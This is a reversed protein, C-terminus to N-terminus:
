VRGAAVLGVGDPRRDSLDLRFRHQLADGHPGCSAFRVGVHRAGLRRAVKISPQNGALVVIGVSRAGQDVAWGLLAEASASLLGRGRAPAALWYGIEGRSAHWTISGLVRDCDDSICFAAEEGSRWSAAADALFSEADARGYPRPVTTWRPIEPDQCAIAVGAADSARWPRLCADRGPISLVPQDVPWLSEM